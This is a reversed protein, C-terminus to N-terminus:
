INSSGILSSMKAQLTQQTSPSGAKHFFCKLRYMPVRKNKCNKDGAEMKFSNSYHIKNDIKPMSKKMFILAMKADAPDM